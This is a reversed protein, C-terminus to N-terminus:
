QLLIISSIRMSGGPENVQIRLDYQLSEYGENTKLKPWVMGNEEGALFHCGEIEKLDIVKRGNVQFEIKGNLFRSVEQGELFMADTNVPSCGGGFCTRFCVIIIAEKTSSVTSEDVREERSDNSNRKGYNELEAISPINTTVWGDGQRVYFFDKFDINLFDSCSLSYQTPQQQQGQHEMPDFALPLIHNSPPSPIINMDMGNDYTGDGNNSIIGKYRADSPLLATRCISPRQYLIDSGVMQLLEDYKANDNKLWSGADSPSSQFLFHDLEDKNLLFNLLRVPNRLDKEEDDTPINEDILEEYTFPPPNNILDDLNLIANQLMEVMFYSLLHGKLQHMKRKFFIFMSSATVSWSILLYAFPPLFSFSDYSLFLRIM